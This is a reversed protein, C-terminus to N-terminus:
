RTASRSVLLVHIVRQFMRENTGAGFRTVTSKCNYEHRTSSVLAAYRPRKTADNNNHISIFAHTLQRSSKSDAVPLSDVVTIIDDEYYRMMHYNSSERGTTLIM